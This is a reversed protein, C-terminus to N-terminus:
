SFHCYGMYSESAFTVKVHLGTEKDQTINKMYKGFILMHICAAMCFFDLEYSWPKGDLMQTCTFSSVGDTSLFKHNKPFMSMDVGRGFDILVLFCLEGAFNAFM